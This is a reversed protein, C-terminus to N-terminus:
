LSPRMGKCRRKGVVVKRRAPGRGAAGGEHVTRVQHQPLWLRATQQLPGQKKKIYDWVMDSTWDALPNLKVIGGHAADIEIKKTEARTAVQDRRLGTIWGDLEGLARNLPHVKRIECCM